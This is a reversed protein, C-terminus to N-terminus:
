SQHIRNLSSLTPWISASGSIVTRTPPVWLPIWHTTTATFLGRRSLRKRAVLSPAVAAMSNACGMSFWCTWAGAMDFSFRFDRDANSTGVASDLTDYHHDDFETVIEYGYGPPSCGEVPSDSGLWWPPLLPLWAIPV